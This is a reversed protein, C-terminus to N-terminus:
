PSSSGRTLTYSYNFIGLSGVILLLVGTGANGAVLSFLGFLIGVCCALTGFRLMGTQQRKTVRV